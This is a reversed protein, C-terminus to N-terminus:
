GYAGNIIILVRGDPPVASSFIAEVAFTGSGQMLIAEYDGPRAGALAVLRERIERVIGIFAFDRSGLDRLMAHKVTRSTTLPGPTFLAKDKWGSIPQKENM